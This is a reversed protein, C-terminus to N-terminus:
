GQGTLVALPWPDRTLAVALIYAFALIAGALAAARIARTRGRRLAISGLLIYSLLGGLKATLWAQQLPYQHLRVALGVASILLLSDILDPLTRSLRHNLRQSGSLMWGGRLLFGAFTLVVCSLHISRLWLYGNV